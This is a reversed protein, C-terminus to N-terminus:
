LLMNRICDLSLLLAITENWTITVGGWTLVFICTVSIGDEGPVLCSQQPLCSQGDSLSLLMIAQFVLFTTQARLRM